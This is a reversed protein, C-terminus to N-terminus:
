AGLRLVVSDGVGRLVRSVMKVFEPRPARSLLHAPDVEALAIGVLATGQEDLESLVVVRFEKADSRMYQTDIPNATAETETVTAVDTQQAAIAQKALACVADGSDAAHRAVEFPEHDRNILFLYGANSSCEHLLLELAHRTREAPRAHISLRTEIETLLADQESLGTTVSHKAHPLEVL